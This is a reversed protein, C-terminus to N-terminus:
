GRLYYVRAADTRWKKFAYADLRQAVTKQHLDTLIRPVVMYWRWVFDEQSASLAVTRELLREAQGIHLDCATADGNDLATLCAQSHLIAAARLEEWSWRARSSLAEDVAATTAEVSMALVAAVEDPGHERYSEVLHRYTESSAATPPSQSPQALAVLCASSILILVATSVHTRM